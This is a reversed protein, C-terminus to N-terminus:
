TMQEPPHATRSRTACDLKRGKSLAMCTPSTELAM